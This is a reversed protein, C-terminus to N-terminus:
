EFRGLWQRASRWQVRRERGCQRWHYLRDSDSQGCADVPLELDVALFSDNSYFDNNTAILEYEGAAVVRYLELHTDLLSSTELRQAFTELKVLGNTTAQFRYFDIDDSEPRHM